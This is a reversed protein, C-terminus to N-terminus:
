EIVLSKLYYIYDEESVFEQQVVASNSKAMSKKDNDLYVNDTESYSTVYSKGSASDTFVRLVGRKGAYLTWRKSIPLQRLYVIAKDGEKFVPMEACTMVLDGVRGGLVTFTVYGGENFSGKVTKRVIMQVDTYIKLNNDMYSNIAVVEGSLVADSRNVLDSTTVHAILAESEFAIVFILILMIWFTTSFGKTKKKMCFKIIGLSVSILVGVLMLSLISYSKVLSFIAYVLKGFGMRGSESKLLVKTIWPAVTYYLDTLAVGVQSNLLYNDRFSRLDERFAIMGVGGTTPTTTGTGGTPIEIINMPCVDNPDGFMPKQVPRMESLIKGTNASVVTNKVFDWVLPTGADKKSIDIINEVEHFVESMFNTQYDASDRVTISFSNPGQIHDVDTPSLQPPAQRELGTQNLPNLTITYTPTFLQGRMGPVEMTKWLGILHFKGQLQTNILPEYLGVMTSFLPIRPTNPNNDVDAWAVIHGGPLPISPMGSQKRTRSRAEHRIDFFNEQAGRPYLWSIGSIDDPALDKQGAVRVGSPLEIIFYIPFMTPTAGIFEAIGDPKTMWVVPNEVLAVPETDTQNLYIGRLNNLPTHNLGLFHGLEHVVTAVLEPVDGYSTVINSGRHAEASVIIDSDIITGGSIPYIQNNFTYVSDAVSFLVTTVGLIAGGVDVSERDALIGEETADAPAVYMSITPLVDPVTLSIPDQYYGIVRFSAYSTPVSEWVKMAELVDEIEDPKFGRPGEEIYVGIGEGTTINGDNNTDFEYFPWKVLRLVNFADFGGTPFFGFGNSMLLMSFVVIGIAIKINKM